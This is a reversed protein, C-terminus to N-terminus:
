HPQEETATAAETVGEAHAPEVDPIAAVGGITLDGYANAPAARGPFSAPPRAASTMKSKSSPRGAALIAGSADMSWINDIGGRDSVFYLQNNSGWAPMLAVGVGAGLHVKGTGDLNVIWLDSVTPRQGQTDSGPVVPVAAYVIRQGDPSWAPNIYATIPSSAVETLNVSRGETYDLTWISFAHDGRERSLQFLIKDAGGAGTGGVPCWSPFLGYGIFSMVGPNAADAVWMEWRGSVEGLRCFALKTGDPSWTAHLDPTADSTIQVAQGGTVPMVYIDWSGGRGSSFAIRTGDPSISPMVDDDGDSTLQTVVRSGVLQTYIDATARHRTSAFVIRSGDHSVCPDFDAGQEAFTVRNVREVSGRESSLAAAASGASGTLLMPGGPLSLFMAPRTDAQALQQSSSTELPQADVPERRHARDRSANGSYSSCGALVTILGALAILTAASRLPAASNHHALTTM